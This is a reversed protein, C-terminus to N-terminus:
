RCNNPHRPPVLFLGHRTPRLREKLLQNLEATDTKLQKRLFREQQALSKFHKKYDTCAGHAALERGELTSLAEKLGAIRRLRWECDVISQALLKEQYTEPEFKQNISEVFAEYAAVEDRPLLMTRGTPGTKVACIAASAKDRKTDIQVPPVM